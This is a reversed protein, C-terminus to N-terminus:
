AKKLESKKLVDKPATVPSISPTVFNISVNPTNGTTIPEIPM